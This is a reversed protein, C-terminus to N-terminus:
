RIPPKAPKRTSQKIDLLRVLRQVQQMDPEAERPVIGAARRLAHWKKIPVQVTIVQHAGKREERSATTPCALLARIAGQAEALDQIYDTM